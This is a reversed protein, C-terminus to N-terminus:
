RGGQRDGVGRKEGSAVFEEVEKVVEEVFERVQGEDLLGGDCRVAFDVCDDDERRIVDLYFNKESLYSTSLADVATKARAPDKNDAEISSVRDDPDIQGAYLSAAEDERLQYPTFVEKKEVRKNDGNLGETRFPPSSLINVFANFIPKGAGMGAFGLVEKLFSQEYGVREALDTQLRHASETIPMTLASPMCVPTINLCPACLTEIGEFSASRGTQYLGFLPHTTSTHRALTRAFATLLLTPLTLSTSQCNQTLTRLSPIASPFTVFTSPITTQTPSSNLLTPQCDSLSKRWYAQQQSSHLAKLTHNIFPAFPQPSPLDINQYLAGLDSVLAPITWADYTAHHLKLLVLDQSNGRVHQLKAPPTFLNFREDAQRKIEEQVPGHSDISSFSENSLESAKLVVQVIETPSVAVFSTRLISHRERLKRWASALSDVNLQMYSQYTFVPERTTRYTKLWSALHYVQGALCPLIQEVDEGEMALFSMVKTATDNTILTRIEKTPEDPPGRSKERLRRCIGALSRGQIVDAVSIAFGQNRCAAAVQIAAISDLGLSFISTELTINKSPIQSVVSLAERIADLDPGYGLKPKAPASGKNGKIHLPLGQLSPPFAMVSKSPHELVDQFTHEFTSIWNQLREQTMRANVRLIMNETGQELEVNLSYETPNLVGGIEIPTGLNDITSENSTNNLFVFVSDFLQAEAIGARQRWAQQIRALSAHQHAQTDGSSQQIYNAMSENSVYTKDLTIRSPVTNFMPGVIDEAGPVALSRGGVVHGFVVDRQGTLCALSKAYALLAITQLTAGLDKCGQLVNGLNMDLTHEINTIGRENSESLYRSSQYGDLKQLWFGEADSTTQSIAKAADSFPSRPHLEVSDYLRALDQVLFNISVGDYLSHHMSIVLVVEGSRRWTTTKWPLKEFSAEDHFTFNETISSLSESETWINPYDEHVAAVWLKRMTAFHFTTRLIETRAILRGWAQKLRPMDVTAWLRLAHHHAYLEGGSGLTQTLMSSQLPTCRYTDTIVDSQSLIPIEPILEQINIVQAKPGDAQLHYGGVHQALAGICTHRM